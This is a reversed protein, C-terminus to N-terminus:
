AGDDGDSAPIPEAPRSPSPANSAGLKAIAAAGLAEILTGGEFRRDKYDTWGGNCDVANNPPGDPNDCLITVSDGGDRRLLNIYDMAQLAQGVNM